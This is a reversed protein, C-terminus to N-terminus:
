LDYTVGFSLNMGKTFENLVVNRTGDANERTLKFAPNLINNARLKLTLNKTIKASSVFALTPVGEEIIDNFGGLSSITHVRNSFYNFVVSNVFNRMGSTFQHSIDFNVIVPAAGELQTNRSQPQGNNDTYNVTLRTFIYSANLGATLRNVRESESASFNFINKRIELEAGAATAFDSINAYTLLGASNGHDVRAIPNVIHKYFGTVSILESPSLYFDWKLDANYNDSPKLHPNGQSVFTINVYQYPSIEKSQPMTYTKSLGLRLTNKSNLDYKANLSPLIYFKNISEKGPAVHQVNHDVTMDVLDGKLGANIFFNSALQYNVEAFPSNILKSVRYSNVDGETQIFRGLKQNEANYVDDLKLDDIAYRGSAATFNFEQAEFRDDVYRGIYGVQINSATNAFKDNLKYILNLKANFDNENLISFFRKQRNSGTLFYSGDNDQSLYNERRDPEAGKVNNHSFGVNLELKENLKWESMIQNTLLLNDNTQQRRLFGMYNDSDQHRESNVGSYEGVYENNAHVMMFNYTLRHANFGYQANLLALQNTNNSFKKGKQDQYINGITNSNRVIEDTISYSKAHSLVGFFSLPNTNDGVKFSRGGSVGFGHNLPLVTSPDLSNKFSFESGAPKSKDSLGVYNSGAQKLYDTQFADVNAGASAEVSFAKDGILEKSVIDIVAGGVDGALSSNFVKNVGINQIVDTSFFDLAINKYEPDESPIPFGNLYTVNYRDGLGRVFVNKVGEQKSIGTVNAVASEADSIGKRSMERAGVAQTALLAQRQEMLLINESERNARAVVEVEGLAIDASELAIDVVTEKGSEVRVNAKSQAKYSIYTVSLTYTGPDLNTITYNGDFDTAGGTTTGSITVSAGILPENDASDIVKGKISGKQAFLSTSILFLLAIIITEKNFKLRYFFVKSKM